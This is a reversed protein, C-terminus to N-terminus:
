QVRVRYFQHGALPTKVELGFPAGAYSYIAIWNTLNSSSEVVYTANPVGAIDLRVGTETRTTAITQADSSPVQFPIVDYVSQFPLWLGAPAYITL